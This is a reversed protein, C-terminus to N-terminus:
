KERLISDAKQIFEEPTEIRGVKRHYLFRAYHKVCLNKAKAKDECLQCAVGELSVRRVDPNESRWYHSSCLNKSTTKKGCGEISCVRSQFQRADTTGTRAMRKYHKSCLGKALAKIECGDVTCNWNWM